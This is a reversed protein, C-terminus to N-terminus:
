HRVLSGKKIRDKLLSFFSLVDAMTSLEMVILILRGRAWKQPNNMQTAKSQGIRALQNETRKAAYFSTM